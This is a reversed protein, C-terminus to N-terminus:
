LRNDDRGNDHQIDQHFGIRNNTKKNPLLEIFEIESEKELRLAQTINKASVVKQILYKKNM